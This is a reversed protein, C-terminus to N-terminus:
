HIYTKMRITLPSNNDKRNVFDM